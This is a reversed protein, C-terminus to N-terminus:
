TLSPPPGSPLHGLPHAERAFGCAITSHMHRGRQPTILPGRGRVSRSSSPNLIVKKGTGAPLLGRHAGTVVHLHTHTHARVRRAVLCGAHLCSCTPAAHAAPGQSRELVPAHQEVQKASPKHARNTEAHGAPEPVSAGDRAPHKGRTGGARRATAVHVQPRQRSRTCTACPRLTSTCGELRRMKGSAANTSAPATMASSRDGAHVMRPTFSTGM